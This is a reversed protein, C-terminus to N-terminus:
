HSQQLFMDVISSLTTCPSGEVWDTHQSKEAPTFHYFGSFVENGDITVLLNFNM